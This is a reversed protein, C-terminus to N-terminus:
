LPRAEKSREDETVIYYFIDDLDVPNMSFAVKRNVLERSLKAADEETTMVQTEGDRRTFKEGEFPPLDVGTGPIRLAYRYKLRSRLEQTTGISLLRGDNLIGIRDSVAEAEELYHTTLFVFREKGLDTLVNWLQKRSIPDLGTTPEDLFIIDADSALAMAVLVKRKIGGSLTSNMKMGYADIGVRRIAVDALKMSESYGVGRWMLYSSITQRPTMWSVTRGEQPVVAIRHRLENADSMVDLGNISARGSNPELLTALIRTLTTKGAGNRGILTFIGSTPTAFSVSSLAVKGNSFRKVIGDCVLEGSGM